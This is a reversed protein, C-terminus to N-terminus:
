WTNRPRPRPVFVPDAYDRVAVERSLISIAQEDADPADDHGSYGPCLRLISHIATRSRGIRQRSIQLCSSAELVRSVGRDYRGYASRETFWKLIAPEDFNFGLIQSPLTIM